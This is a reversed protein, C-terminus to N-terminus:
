DGEVQSLALAASHIVSPQTRVPTQAPGPAGTTWSGGECAGVM